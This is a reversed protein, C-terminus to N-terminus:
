CSKVPDLNCKRNDKDYAREVILGINSSDELPYNCQDEGKVDQRIDNIKQGGSSTPLLLRIALRKPIHLHAMCM